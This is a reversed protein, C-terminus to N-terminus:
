CEEPQRYSVKRGMIKWELKNIKLRGSVNIIQQRCSRSFCFNVKVKIQVYKSKVLGYQTSKTVM